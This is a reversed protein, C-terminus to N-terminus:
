SATARWRHWKSQLFLLSWELAPAPDSWEFVSYVKRAGLISGLWDRTSLEGSHRLEQFAKFDRALDVWKYRTSYGTYPPAKGTLLYHYTLAPLNVGNVAGIYNWLTFRANVELIYLKGNREDQKFDIKFVGKLRLQRIIHQGLTAVQEFHVLEVFASEGTQPPYTRIKRGVFWALVESHEDALGHFSYLRDDGGPIYAQITLDNEYARLRPDALLAPLSSYVIAKGQRHMLERFLPSEHWHQKHRPKVIVPGPPLAGGAAKAQQWSFRMPVPLRLRNALEQFREKELLAEGVEPDSTLFLFYPELASRYRYLLQLWDDSEYFLPVRGGIQQAMTEGAEVLGEAAREAGDDPSPVVWNAFRLRSWRSGDDARWGLVVPISARGLPRLLNIGGLLFAPPHDPKFRAADLRSNRPPLFHGAAEHRGLPFM